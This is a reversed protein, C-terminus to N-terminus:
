AQYARQAECGHHYDERYNTDRPNLVTTFNVGGPFHEPLGQRCFDTEDKAGYRYKPCKVDRAGFFMSSLKVILESRKRPPSASPSVWTYRRRPAPIASEQSPFQFSLLISFPLFGDVKWRNLCGCHFSRTREDILLLFSNVIWHILSILRGKHHVILFTHLGM